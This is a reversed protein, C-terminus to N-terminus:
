HVLIVSLVICVLVLAEGDLDTGMTSGTSSIGDDLDERSQRGAQSYSCVHSISIPILKVCWFLLAQKTRIDTSM